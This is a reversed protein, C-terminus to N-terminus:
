SSKAPEDRKLGSEAVRPQSADSNLVQKEEDDRMGAKFNKVGQAVDGMMKPLKGAGFLIVVILLVLVVQRIGIKM